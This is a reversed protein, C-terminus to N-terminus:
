RRGGRGGGMGGHMGMGWGGRSQMHQQMQDAQEQTIAGDAVAAALAEAHADLHLQRFEALTMGQAEAISWVTEGTEIRDALQEATLGLADAFAAQKYDHLAGMLVSGEGRAGFGQARMGFGRMMSGFQGLGSGGMPCATSADAPAETDPTQAYAYGAVSVAALVATLVIGFLLMKKM